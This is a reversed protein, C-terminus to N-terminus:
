APQCSATRRVRLRCDYAGSGFCAAIGAPRSLRSTQQGLHRDLIRSTMERFNIGLDEYNPGDPVALDAMVRILLEHLMLREPRFAVVEHPSLGCFDGLELAEDLNTLVSDGRFMTSLPLYCRPIKSRLGPNWPGAEDETQQQTM